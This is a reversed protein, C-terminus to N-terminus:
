DEVETPTDPKRRRRPRSSKSEITNLGYPNYRNKWRYFTQPSIGFYRWTLKATDTKRYHDLWSLKKKAEKSINANREVLALYGRRPLVAGYRNMTVDIKGSSM